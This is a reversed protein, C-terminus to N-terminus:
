QRAPAALRRDGADPSGRRGGSPIGGDGPVVDRVALRGPWAIWTSWSVPFDRGPYTRFGQAVRNLLFLPNTLLLASSVPWVWWLPGVELDRALDQIVPPGLLWLAELTYAVLIADRPRRALVSIFISLGSVSLVTTFTGVYISIVKEPDLGGYLALLCVVPLGLAVFVGVHLLRAGLKGLVIELSSLRSALLYHLTKRHSEDAIVGAVLAPLLFLLTAVQAQAFVIFTSGAFQHLEEPTAGAPHDFEWSAFQGWLLFLLVAGYVTRALYYRGRRATTILEYRLVPGVGFVM